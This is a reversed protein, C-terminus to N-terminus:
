RNLGRNEVVNGLVPHQFLGDAENECRESGSPVGGARRESRGQQVTQKLIRYPGGRM